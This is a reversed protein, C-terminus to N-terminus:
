MDNSVNSEDFLIKGCCHFERKNMPPLSMYNGYMISLYNDYNNMIPFEQDEFKVQKVTELSVLPFFINRKQLMKYLYCTVYSSDTKNYKTWLNYLERELWTKPVLKLLYHLMMKIINKNFSRKHKLGLLRLYFQNKKFDVNRTKRDNSIKDFPFVDIFIGRYKYSETGPEPYITGKRVLKAHYKNYAVDIEKTLVVFNNGVENPAVKLFKEYDDRMMGVDLDDDWPIFGGHRVAGLATGSDLFYQINHKKCIRDFECLLEFLVSHLKNLVENNNDM